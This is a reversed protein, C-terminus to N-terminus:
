VVADDNLAQFLAFLLNPADDDGVCGLFLRLLAFNNSNTGTSAVFRALDIGEVDFDAIAHQKTLPGAAFHLDVAVIEQDHLLAVDEADEFRGGLLFGGSLDM